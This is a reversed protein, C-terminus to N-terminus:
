GKVAAGSAVGTGASSLGPVPAAAPQGDSAPGNAHEADAGEAWAPESSPRLYKRQYEALFIDLSDIRGLTDVVSMFEVGRDDIRRTAIEFAEAEPSDAMKAAFKTKLRDLGFQDGAVSYGVAAKIIDARERDSLPIKDGWRGAAMKELQEGAERWSGAAWLTDARLRDVDEGRMNRVIELALDPRGSETLARAEVINRQRSLAGPLHAQRTRNLVKLAEDPKRDMLYVVGLDAAIQARAAGKLRNDVQHKLLEAAQDLLDVAILRSALKRVMEDGRRGVPTLERFDYFLALAEIPDMGEAKGDLYLTAFVANMEEQLLRTTESDADAQIASKMAEFADRYKGQQVHLQALFRLTKLETEDGRWVTALGSLEDIAQQPAMDGDRYRIRLSRYAAEAARPGDQSRKVLDFSTLAERSRGSADAIRGRLLDYRAAQDASVISPDVEALISAAQGFDNVEVMVEASSLNFDNQVPLPYNGIVASGRAITERATGWDRLEASAITQWVAADPSNKLEPRNLHKLSQKPRSSLVQAAGMMLNYSGDREIVPDDEAALQMLGLAEQPLGNALYFRALAMRPVRRQGKPTSAIELQMDKVKNLFDPTSTTLLSGLDIQGPQSPDIITELVRSGHKLNDNSLFLGQPAELLVSDGELKIALDDIRASVAVGHASMLADLEAFSQPKILGRAPSFATVVSIEDGAFPDTIRHVKQPGRLPIHLVTGGDSRINREVTLPRSPELITEGITLVWSNGDVGVTALANGSLDVRISQWDPRSQAEVTDADNGLVSRMGRIDIPDSTDFVLWISQHRRFVASSVPELFPFVVRVTNGIRRAEAAVFRRTEDDYGAPASEPTFSQEELKPEDGHAALAALDIAPPVSIGRAAPTQPAVAAQAAAEHMPEAEAAVPGVPEVITEATAKDNAHAAGAKATPLPQVPSGKVLRAGDAPKEIEPVPKVAPKPEQEAPNKKGSAQGPAEIVDRAEGPVESTLAAHVAKNVPDTEQQEPTIDIVYSEDERFARINVNSSLRLLFKLKEGDVFSTADVVGPPLHARLESLDIDAGYNFTLKVIDEERVFATDIPVNWVFALRTFTPHVGIRLAVEPEIQGRLRAQELARAKKLAEEARLALEKVISDPLPPPPGSWGVPLLDIFLTEGAEMTNIRYERTLALRIASGDPDKRAISVYEPLNVPVYEVDVDIPSPFSIKLVNNTVIADYQPLLNRKKFTLVLRAFGAEESVKLAAELTEARVPMGSSVILLMLVLLARLHVAGGLASVANAFATCNRKDVAAGYLRRGM